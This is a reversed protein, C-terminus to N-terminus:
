VKRSVWGAFQRALAELRLQENNPLYWAGHMSSSQTAFLPFREKGAIVEGEVYDSPGAGYRGGGSIALPSLYVTHIRVVLPPGGRGIRGAFERQLSEQLQRRLIVAAGGAGRAELPRTDVVISGFRQGTQALAGGGPIGSLAVGGAAAVLGLTFERRNM